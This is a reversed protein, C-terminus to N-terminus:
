CLLLQAPLATEKLEVTKSVACNGEAM